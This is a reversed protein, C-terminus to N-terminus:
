NRVIWNLINKIIIGIFLCFIVNIYLVKLLLCLMATQTLVVLLIVRLVELMRDLYCCQYASLFCFGTIKSVFGQPFNNLMQWNWMITGSLLLNGVERLVLSEDQSVFIKDRLNFSKLPNFFQLYWADKSDNYVILFWGLQMIMHIVSFVTNWCTNRAFSLLDLFKKHQETLKSISGDIKRNSKKPYFLVFIFAAVINKGMMRPTELHIFHCFVTASGPSPGLPHPFLQWLRRNCKSIGFVKWLVLQWCNQIAFHLFLVVDSNIKQLSENM